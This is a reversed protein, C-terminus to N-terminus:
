ANKGRYDLRTSCSSRWRSLRRNPRLHRKMWVRRVDGYLDQLERNTLWLSVSLRARTSGYRPRHFGARGLAPNPVEGTLVWLIFEGHRWDSVAVSSALDLLGLVPSGPSVCCALPKGDKCSWEFSSGHWGSSIMDLSWHPGLDAPTRLSPDAVDSSKEIPTADTNARVWRDAEDRTLLRDCLHERRWHKISPLRDLDQALLRQQLLWLLVRGRQDTRPTPAEIAAHAGQKRAPFCLVAKEHDRLRHDERLGARVASRLTERADEECVADAIEGIYKEEALYLMVSELRQGAVRRKELATRLQLEAETSRM